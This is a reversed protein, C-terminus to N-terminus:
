KIGLDPITGVWHADAAMTISFEIVEGPKVTFCRHVKKSSYNSLKAQRGDVGYASACYTGAEIPIFATGDRGTMALSKSPRDQRAFQLVVNPAFVAPTGPEKDQATTVSVFSINGSLDNSQAVIALPASVLCLALAVSKM